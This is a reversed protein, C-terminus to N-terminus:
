ELANFEDRTIPHGRFSKDHRRVQRCADSCIKGKVSLFSSGCQICNRPSPEVKKYQSNRRKNAEQCEASCFKRWGQRNEFDGYREFVTSCVPCRGKSPHLGTEKTYQAERWERVRRKARRKEEASRCTESCFRKPKGSTRSVDFAKGCRECNM